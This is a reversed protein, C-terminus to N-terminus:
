IFAAVKSLRLLFNDIYDKLTELDGNIVSVNFLPHLIHLENYFNVYLKNDENQWKIISVLAPEIINNNIIKCKIWASQSKAERSQWDSLILNSSYNIIM